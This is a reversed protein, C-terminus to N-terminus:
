RRVREKLRELADPKLGAELDANLPQGAIQTQVSQGLAGPELPLAAPGGIGAQRRHIRGVSADEEAPLFLDPAQHGNDISRETLGAPIQDHHHARRPRPLGRQDTGPQHGPQGHRSRAPHHGTRELRPGPGEGPQGATQGSEDWTLQSVTFAPVPQQVLSDPRNAFPQGVM